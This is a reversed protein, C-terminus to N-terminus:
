LCNELFITISRIRARARADGAAVQEGEAVAVDLDFVGLLGAAQRHGDGAVLCVVARAPDIFPLALAQEADAGVGDDGIKAVGDWEDIIQEATSQLDTGSRRRGQLFEAHDGLGEVEAFQLDEGEGLAVAQRLASSIRM